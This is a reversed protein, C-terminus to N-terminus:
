SWFDWFISDPERLANRRRRARAAPRDEDGLLEVFQDDGDAGAGADARGGTRAKRPSSPHRAHKRGPKVSKARSM